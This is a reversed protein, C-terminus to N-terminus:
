VSFDFRYVGEGIKTVGVDTRGYHLLHHRRVPQGLPVGIRRRFYIGMESASPFSSVQKPYVIGDITQNGFLLGEMTTGDDWIIEIADNHRHMRGRGDFRLPNLQKQLFLEPYNRIDEVRIKIYADNPRIHNNPNKTNVNNMRMM